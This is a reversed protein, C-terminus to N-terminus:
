HAKVVNIPAKNLQKYNMKNAHSERRVWKCSTENNLSSAFCKLIISIWASTIKGKSLETINNKSESHIAKLKTYLKM